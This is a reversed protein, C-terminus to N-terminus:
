FSIFMMPRIFFGHVKEAIWLFKALHKLIEFLRGSIAQFQMLKLRGNLVVEFTDVHEVYM